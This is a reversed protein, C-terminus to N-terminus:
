TSGEREVDDLTLVTRLVEWRRPMPSHWGWVEFAAGSSLWAVLRPEALAKRVRARANSKTTAQIGLVRSHRVALVDICGFLDQRIRAHANWHEVVAATYGERRALQLTRQTPSAAM